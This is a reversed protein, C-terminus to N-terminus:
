SWNWGTQERGTASWPHSLSPAQRLIAGHAPCPSLLRAKRNDGIGPSRSGGDGIHGSADARVGCHAKTTPNLALRPNPRICVLLFPQLGFGQM